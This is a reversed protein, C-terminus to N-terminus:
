KGCSTQKTKSKKSLPYCKDIAMRIAESYTILRGERISLQLAAEKIIEIQKKELVISTKMADNLDDKRSGM